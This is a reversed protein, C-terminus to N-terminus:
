SLTCSDAFGDSTSSSSIFVSLSVLGFNVPLKQGRFGPSLGKGVVLARAGGGVYNTCAYCQRPNIALLTTFLGFHILAQEEHM